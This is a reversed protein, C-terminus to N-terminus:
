VLSVSNKRPETVSSFSYGTAVNIVFHAFFVVYNWLVVVRNSWFEMVGMWHEKDMVLVKRVRVLRDELLSLEVTHQASVCLLFTTTYYAQLWM